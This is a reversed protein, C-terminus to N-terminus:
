ISSHLSLELVKEPGQKNWSHPNGYSCGAKPVEPPSIGPTCVAFLLVMYLRGRCRSRCPCWKNLTLSGTIGLIWGLLFRQFLFCISGQSCIARCIRLLDSLHMTFSALTVPVEGLLRCGQHGEVCLPVTPMRSELQIWFAQLLVMLMFYWTGLTRRSGQIPWSQQLHWGCGMTLVLYSRFIYDLSELCNPFFKWFRRDWWSRKMKLTSCKRLHPQPKSLVQIRERGCQSVHEKLGSCEDGQCALGPLSSSCFALVPRLKPLRPRQDWLFVVM